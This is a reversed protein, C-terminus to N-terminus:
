ALFNNYIIFYPQPAQRWYLQPKQSPCCVGGVFTAKGPLKGRQGFASRRRSDHRQSVKSKQIACQKHVVLRLCNHLWHLLTSPLPRCFQLLSVRWVAVILPVMELFALFIACITSFQQPIDPIALQSVSSRCSELESQLKNSVFRIGTHIMASNLYMSTKNMRGFSM